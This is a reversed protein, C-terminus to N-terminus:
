KPVERQEKPVEKMTKETGKENNKRHRKRQKKNSKDRKRQKENSKDRKLAEKTMKKM